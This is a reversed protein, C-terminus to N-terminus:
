APDDRRWVQFPWTISEHGSRHQGPAVELVNALDNKVLVPLLDIAVTGIVYLNEHAIAVVQRGLDLRKDTDPEMLAQKYLDIMEKIEPTPEEGQQGDSPGWQAYLMGGYWGGGWPLTGEPNIMWLYNGTVYAPFDMENAYVRQSWLTREIEKMQANLGVEQWYMAIQQFVDALPTGMEMPYCELLIDMRVGDPRLRWGDADRQDLGAEDLLANAKDLDFELGAADTGDVWTPDNPAIVSNSPRGVGFWFLENMEERNVAHSLGHRFSKNQTVARVNPDVATQNVYICPGGGDVWERIRYNGREENERLLSLNAFGLHRYQLDIEGAVARLLVNEGDQAMDCIFRDFYPLQKGETDVRWYYPNREAILRGTEPPTVLHWPWIVPLDVNTWGQNLAAFWQYWSDFNAAEAKAALEEPDVYKPHFQSLYHKPTIMTEGRFCIFEMLLGAPAAFRLSFTYDDIKELVAKEGGIVLWNVFAPNLEENLAVDEYWFVFDDATFPEGDSWKMGKRLHFTYVKGDETIDWSEALNPIIKLTGDSYDMRALSEKVQTSWDWVDGITTNARHIDTCYQGVGEIGDVVHPNVPLREEVPPLDGATVKAALSPAEQYKSAPAAEAAPATTAAPAATAEPAQTAAPSSPAAPAGCAALGATTASAAAVAIFSRRSLRRATM